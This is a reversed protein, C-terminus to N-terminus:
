RPQAPVARFPMTCTQVYPYYGAPNDCYYWMTPQNPPPPPAQQIVVPPAAQQIIVGPPPAPVAEPLVVESVVMPFPYVPREYFYWFGDVVWWWGYRGHHWEQRWLGGAWREREHHDFHHVDRDHFRHEDAMASPAALASLALAFLGGAILRKLKVHPM